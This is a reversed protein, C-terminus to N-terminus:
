GALWSILLGVPVLVWPIFTLVLAILAIVRAQDRPPHGCRGITEWLADLPPGATLRIRRRAVAAGRLVTWALGAVLLGVAITAAIRSLRSDLATNIASILVQALTSIVAGGVLFTPIGLPNRKFGPSLRAMDIRARTLLRRQPDDSAANAERRAYLRLLRDAVRAQYSRVIFHAVQQVLLGAIPGLPGLSRVRVGRAGNRDLVELSRVALRHAEPFRDPHGLPRPASLELVIDRDVDDQAGLLNLLDESAKSDSKRFAQFAQLKEDFEDLVLSKDGPDTM